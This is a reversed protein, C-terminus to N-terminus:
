KEIKNYKNIDLYKNMLEKDKIKVCEWQQTIINSITIKDLSTTKLFIYLPTFIEISPASSSSM